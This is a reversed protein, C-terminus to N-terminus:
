VKLKKWWEQNKLYWDITIKLWSEFDNLPKWGLENEIKSTNIAYKVDHGPRDKVFEIMNKM